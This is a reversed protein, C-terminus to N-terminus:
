FSWKAQLITEYETLRANSSKDQNGGDYMLVSHNLQLLVDETLKYNVGYIMRDQASDRKDDTNLENDVDPNYVDERVGLEWSEDITWMVMKSNGSVKYSDSKLSNPSKGEVGEWMFWLPGLYYNAALGNFWKVTEVGEKAYADGSSVMSNYASARISLGPLPILSVSIDTAANNDTETPKSYGNGGFMALQYDGWGGPLFGQMSVGLDASSLLGLQDELPKYILPYEWKDLMAFYVPQVGVRVFTDWPLVEKVDFYAYKVLSTWDSNSTNGSKMPLDLTVNGELNQEYKLKWRLYLREISAKTTDDHTDSYQAVKSTLRNWAYGYFQIETAAAFVDGAALVGALISAIALVKIMKM